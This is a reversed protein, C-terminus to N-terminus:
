HDFLCVVVRPNSKSFILKASYKQMIYVVFGYVKQSADCFVVLCAPASSDVVYKPFELSELLLLGGFLSNWMLQKKVTIQVDWGLKLKWLEWLHQPGTFPRSSYCLKPKCPVFYILSYLM